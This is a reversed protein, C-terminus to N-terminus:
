AFLFMYMLCYEAIFLTKSYHFCVRENGNEGLIIQKASKPAKVVGVNPEVDPEFHMPDDLDSDENETDTNELSSCDFVQESDADIIGPYCFFLNIM